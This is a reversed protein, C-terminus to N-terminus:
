GGKVMKVVEEASMSPFIVFSPMRLFQDRTFSREPTGTVGLLYGAKMALQMVRDNTGGQPYSIAVVPKHAYTEILQRSETLELEVQANTLARLDDGTHGASELDFGNATLTILMKETLGSLGINKTEIFLTAPINSVTLADSLARVNDGTVGGIGLLVPKGSLRIDSREQRVLFDHFDRFTMISYGAQRLATVDAVIAETVGAQGLRYQLVPLAYTDQRVIFRPLFPALYTMSVYGDKGQFTVTAWAGAISKPKLITQGPIEGLKASGQKPESRVNVFAFNVYYQGAFAKKEEALKEDSTMRAIYPVAVYGDKGGVITHVKAWGANVFEKVDMIDGRTLRDVSPANSAPSSRVNLFDNVVRYVNGQVSAGGQRIANYTPLMSLDLVPTGSQASGSGGPLGELYPRDEAGASSVVAGSGSGQAQQALEHYRAADQETFTFEQPAEEPGKCGFLFGFSAILLFAVFPSFSNFRLRRRSRVPIM